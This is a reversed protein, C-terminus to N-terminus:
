DLNCVMQWSSGNGAAGDNGIWQNTANILLEM